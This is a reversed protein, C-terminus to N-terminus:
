AVGGDAHYATLLGSWFYGCRAAERKIALKQRSTATWERDEGLVIGVLRRFSFRYVQANTIQLKTKMAQGKRTNM